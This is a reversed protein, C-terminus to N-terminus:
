DVIYSAEKGSHKIADLNEECDGIIETSAFEQNEHVLPSQCRLSFYLHYVNEKLFISILMYLPALLFLLWYFFVRKVAIHQLVDM